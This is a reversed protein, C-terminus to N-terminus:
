NKNLKQRDVNTGGSSISFTLVTVDHLRLFTEDIFYCSYLGNVCFVVMNRIKTALSNHCHTRQKLSSLTEKRRKRARLMNDTSPTLGHRKDFVAFYCPNVQLVFLSKHNIGHFTCIAIRFKLYRDHFCIQWHTIVM